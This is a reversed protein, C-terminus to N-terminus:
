IYKKVKKMSRDDLSPFIKINHLLLPNEMKERLNTQRSAWMCIQSKGAEMIAHASKKNCVCVRNTRNGQLTRVLEVRM